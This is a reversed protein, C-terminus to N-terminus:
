NAELLLKWAGEVVETAWPDDAYLDIIAQCIAKAEAPNDKALSEAAALRSKLTALDVRNQKAIVADLIALQRRALELSAAIRQRQKASVLQDSDL